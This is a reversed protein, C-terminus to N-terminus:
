ELYVYLGAIPTGQERRIPARSIRV